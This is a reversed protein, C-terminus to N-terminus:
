KINFKKSLLTLIFYSIIIIIFIIFFVNFFTNYKLSFTVILASLPAISSFLLWNLSEVRGVYKSDVEKLLLSKRTPITLLISSGIILLSLLSLSLRQSYGLLLIGISLFLIGFKFLKIETYKKKLFALILGSIIFGLAYTADLYGYEKVGLSLIEKTHISLTANIIHPIANPIIGIFLFFLLLPNKIVYAVGDYVDIFLSTNNLDEKEKSVTHIKMKLILIASIIYTISDILFVWHISFTSIIAGALITGIITGIQLITSNLSILKLFEEQDFNQKLIASISPFFFNNCISILITIVYLLYIDKFNFIMMLLILLVLIFRLLDASVAIIKKDYKDVIAGALPSTILGPISICAVLFGMDMPNKTINFILWSIAIFHMGNGIFSMLSANLLLVANKNLSKM